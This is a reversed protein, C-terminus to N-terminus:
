LSKPGYIDEQEFQKESARLLYVPGLVGSPLIPMRRSFADQIRNALTNAAVIEIENKGAKIYSSIDWRYPAAIRWGLDHGNVSLKASVGVRGLDLGLPAKKLDLSTRYRIKGSFQPNGQRGTINILESQCRFPSYGAAKGQEYLDIDWLACVESREKWCREKLFAEMEQDEVGGWLFLASEGPELSVDVVGDKTEAKEYVENLLDMKLYKGEAPFRVSELIPMPNENFLVFASTDERDFRAIRLLASGAHYDHALRKSFIHDALKKLEVVEGPLEEPCMPAADIFFVPVGAAKLSKAAQWFPEPLYRCSPVALFGYSREGVMFKGAEAKARLLSDVPVIDYPIHADYCIKAPKESFMCGQGNMWEAEGHYLIAGAAEMDTGYLLHAARNTYKMLKSFSEFQPDNGGAYFHPPCDEDPFFDTFAHPVFHNVGRVLLFDILWKMCPLGEAWGFAGFVECMARGKMRATQRAQSAALQALIYHFFEPDAVGESIDAATQYQGMGPMVQHLVIDIGSMDQGALARFFHGASCGLRGHAGMDEIIHGIYMVNHSRCWDGLQYSFNRKWLGTVADMYALRVNPSHERHSYWLAPLWYESWGSNEIKGLILDEWPLAVGPQGVTRYYFGPDRGYPGIYPADLSPEDSFFGAITDGFYEGFHQYHSEYVAEILARPGEKTLMSIYDSGNARTRYVFFLRWCGDPLDLYLFRDDPRTSFAVPEGSIEEADGTRLFACVSILSEDDKCPPILVSIDRAPGMLDVHDERIYWRRCEPHTTKTIGNAYGTPFHKDDLIWVKMNRKKAERLIIELNDWWTEGCFDEFPRSELCFARCGSEWIKQIQGPLEDRHGDHQWFFPLLYNGERHELIEKLIQNM